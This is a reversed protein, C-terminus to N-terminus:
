VNFPFYRLSIKLLLSEQVWRIESRQTEAPQLIQDQWREAHRHCSLIPARCLSRLCKCWFVLNLLGAVCPLSMELLLQGLHERTHTCESINLRLKATQFFLVVTIWRPVSMLVIHNLGALFMWFLNHNLRKMLFFCYKLTCSECRSM